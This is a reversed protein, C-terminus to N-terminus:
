THYYLIKDFYKCTATTLVFIRLLVVQKNSGQISSDIFQVGISVAYWRTCWCWVHMLFLYTFTYMKHQQYNTTPRRVIFTTKSDWDYMPPPWRLLGDNNDNNEVYMFVCYWWRACTANTKTYSLLKIILMFIWWVFKKHRTGSTKTTFRYKKYWSDYIEKCYWHFYHM